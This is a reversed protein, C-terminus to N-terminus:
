PNCLTIRDPGILIVKQKYLAGIAQKFTKKSVKFMAFIEESPSKDTVSISGGSEKIKKIIVDTLELVKGYGSKQLSVDLKKDERLPKIYGKTKEGEKLSGLVDSNHIIGRYSDNIIVNYGIETRNCIMIGVEDGERFEDSAQKLFKNVKASGAIRGTKEDIYVHILYIRGEEFKVNQESFPVFLDKQLGWDMFAGIDTVASVKMYAFGGVEAEPRLLSATLRSQHDHYIFVEVESGLALDGKITSQPILIEGLEGGDVYVGNETRRLAKLRNMRGIQASM